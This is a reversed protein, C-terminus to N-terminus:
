FNLEKTLIEIIDDIIKSLLWIEEDEWKPHYEKRSDIKIAPLNCGFFLKDYIKDIYEIRQNGIFFIKLSYSMDLVINWFNLILDCDIVDRDKQIILEDINYITVQENKEKKFNLNENYVFDQIDDISDFIKIKKNEVFFGDKEDCYWLTYRCINKFKFTVAYYDKM